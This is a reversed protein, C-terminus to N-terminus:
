TKPCRKFFSAGPKRGTLSRGNDVLEFEWVEDVQNKNDDYTTTYLDMETPSYLKVKTVEWQVEFNMFDRDGFYFRAERGACKDKIIEDWAGRFASPITSQYVPYHVAPKVPERAARAQLPVAATSKPVSTKAVVTTPQQSSSWSLTSAFYVTIAVSYVALGIAASRWLHAESSM